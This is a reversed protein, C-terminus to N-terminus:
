PFLREDLISLLLITDSQLDLCTQQYRAILMERRPTERQLEDLKSAARAYEEFLDYLRQSKADRLQKRHQPLAMALRARGLQVLGM